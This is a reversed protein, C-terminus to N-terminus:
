LVICSEQRTYDEAFNRYNGIGASCPDPQRILICFIRIAVRYSSHNCYHLAYFLNETNVSDFGKVM